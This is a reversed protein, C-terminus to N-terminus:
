NEIKLKKLLAEAWKRVREEQGYPENVLLLTNGLIKGGHDLVFRRMREGARCTYYYRDDGLAIIAVPKGALDIDKARGQLLDVMHTNMQGEVGGTNWTGSGLILIEGKLLDEQTAAEAKCDTIQLAAGKLADKLVSVVYETHGSTSAYIIQLFSM